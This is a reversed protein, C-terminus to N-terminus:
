LIWSYNNRLRRGLARSFSIHYHPKSYDDSLMTAWKGGLDVSQGRLMPVYFDIELLRARARFTNYYRYRRAEFVLFFTM